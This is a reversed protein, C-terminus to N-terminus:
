MMCTNDIADTDADTDAVNGDADAHLHRVRMM